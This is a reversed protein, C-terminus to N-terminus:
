KNVCLIPFPDFRQLLVIFSVPVISYQQPVYFAQPFMMSTYPGAQPPGTQAQYVPPASFLVFNKKNIPKLLIFISM